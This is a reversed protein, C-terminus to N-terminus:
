RSLKARLTLAVLSHAPVTVIVSRPGNAAVLKDAPQSRVADPHQYDNAALFSDATVMEAGAAECDAPVQIETQIPGVEGRNVLFVHLRGAKEDYTASSDILGQRGAFTDAFPGECTLPVGVSGARDRFLKLMWYSPTPAVTTENVRILGLVNVTQTVCALPVKPGLRNLANFIEAAFLGERLTYFGRWGPQNDVEPRWVNWEDFCLPVPKGGNNLAAEAWTKQLMAEVNAPDAVARLYEVLPDANVDLGLYYHVSLYTTRDRAGALARANWNNWNGADVGVLVTDISGDVKRMADAMQAAKLGYKSPDLHGAQWDGYMENGLGWLKVAYPAPHVKARLAGMPTKASGNCYEVWEAAEVPDGEGANACIYPASGLIQCLRLFEDTGVDNWEWGGWARNWTPARRDRDGIGDRWHYQSAFNGGPWRIMPPKVAKVAEVVDRRWGDVNDAPMLSAAGIWLTGKGSATLRFDAIFDAPQAPLSFTLAQWTDTSKGVPVEAIPKDGVFLGVRLDLGAPKSMVVLRGVHAVGGRYGTPVQAIGADKGDLRIRQSQCPVYWVSTDPSFASKDAGFGRWGEVVGDKAEGTFKRNSLKEAWFGGYICKNMHEIFHGYRDDDLAWTPGPTVKVVARPTPTAPGIESVAAYDIDLSVDSADGFTKGMFGVFAPAALAHYQGAKTWNEEAAQRYLMTYEEGRREIRLFLDRAPPPVKLFGGQGTPECWLEPEEKPAGLFPARFQGWGLVYGPSFGIVMALHFNAGLGWRNLALHTEYDFDGAPANAVLMPADAHPGETGPLWHNFGNKRAPINLRLWGPRETLSATPGDVPHRFQWRADLNPGDFDDRWGNASVVTLALLAAAMM